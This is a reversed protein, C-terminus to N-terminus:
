NMMYYHSFHVMCTGYFSSFFISALAFGFMVKYLLMGLPSSLVCVLIGLFYLGRMRCVYM